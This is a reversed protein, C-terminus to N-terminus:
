ALVAESCSHLLWDVMLDHLVPLAQTTVDIFVSEALPLFLYWSFSKLLLIIFVRIVQMGFDVLKQGSFLKLFEILLYANSV